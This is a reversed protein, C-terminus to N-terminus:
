KQPNLNVKKKTFIKKGKTNNKNPIPPNKVIPSIENIKKDKTIKNSSSNKSLNKKTSKNDKNVGEKKVENKIITNLVNVNVSKNINKNEHPAEIIKSKLKKSNKKIIKQNNLTKINNNIEKDGQTAPISVTNITNNNPEKNIITNNILNHSNNTNINNNNELNKENINKPNIFPQEKKKNSNNKSVKKGKPIIKKYNNENKNEIKIEQIDKNEQITDHEQVMSNEQIEKNDQIDKNNQIDKNKQINKKEKIEKSQKIEKNQKEEKILNAIAEKNSSNKVNENSNKKILKNLNNELKNNNKTIQNEKKELDKKLQSMCPEILLQTMKFKDELITHLTKFLLKTNDLDDIEFEFDYLKFSVNSLNVKFNFMPSPMIAKGCIKNNKKSYYICELNDYDITIDIGKAFLSFLYKLEYNDLENSLMKGKELETQLYKIYNKIQGTKKNEPLKNLKDLFYKQMELLNKKSNLDNETNIDNIISKIQAKKNSYRFDNIINACKLIYESFLNIRIIGFIIKLVDMSTNNNIKTYKLQFCPTNTSNNNNNTNNNTESYLEILNLPIVKGTPILQTNRSKQTKQNINTTYNQNNNKQDETASKRSESNKSNKRQFSKNNNYQNIAQSINFENKQKKLEMKQVIPTPEYNQIINKTFNNSKNNERNSNYKMHNNNIMEQDELNKNENKNEKNNIEAENTTNSRNIKKMAKDIINLQQAYNPNYKKLLGNIGTNSDIDNATLYNNYNINTNRDFNKNNYSNINNTTNIYSSQIDKRKLSNNSIIVKEGSHLKSPGLVISKITFFFDFKQKNLNIKLDLNNIKTSIFENNEKSSIFPYLNFNIGKLKIDTSFILNINDPNPNERSWIPKGDDDKNKIKKNKDKESETGDVKEIDNNKYYLNYFRIFELRLENSNYNYISSKCKHCWYFYFLWDRVMMKRKYPFIKALKSNKNNKIFKLIEIFYRNKSNYPKKMPKFEQAQGIITFERIFKRFNNRIINLDPFFNIKIENSAFQLYLKYNNEKKGFIDMKGQNISKTGFNCLCNLNQIIFKTDKKYSFNEFKIKKLNTYYSDNLVGNKISDNLLNSPILINANNEWYFDLKTIKLNNKKMTGESSLTLEFLDIKCGFAINGIYNILQDDEFRIHINKLKLILSYNKSYYFEFSDLLIKNLLNSIKTEDKFFKEFKDRNFISNDLVNIKKGFINVSNNEFSNYEQKMENLDEYIFSDINQIIWKYSPTIIINVGEIYAEIPKEGIFNMLSCGINIKSILGAKLWFPFNSRDLEDNVGDPRLNLNEFKIEGKMLGVDLQEKTFGYLFANIYEEIYPYLQNKIM